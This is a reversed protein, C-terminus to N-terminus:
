HPSFVKHEFFSQKGSKQGQREEGCHSGLGGLRRRSALGARPNPLGAAGEPMEPHARRKRVRYNTRPRGFYVPQVGASPHYFSLTKSPTGDWRGIAM